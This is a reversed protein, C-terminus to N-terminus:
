DEEPAESFFFKIKPTLADVYTPGGATVTDFTLESVISLVTEASAPTRIPEDDYQVDFFVATGSEGFGNGKYDMFFSVSKCDLREDLANFADLLDQAILASAMNPVTKNPHTENVVWASSVNADQKAVLRDIIIDTRTTNSLGGM